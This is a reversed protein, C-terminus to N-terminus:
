YKEVGFRLVAERKNGNQKDERVIIARIDPHKACFDKIEDLSMIMFATSLAECYAATHAFAWTAGPQYIPQATRPDIIHFGKQLGSSSVAENNLLVHDIINQPDFPNTFSLEWGAHDPPSNYARVSSRGGHILFENIDWELLLDTIKDVAYGKGIGGLDIIIHSMSLEITFNDENLQILNMGVLQSAKEIEEASPNKLSRDPNLWLNMLSGVTIDFLGGTEKSFAQCQQLCEFTPLCLTLPQGAELNNIRAIDSNPNFRSLLQDLRDLERFAAYAAQHAYHPDHHRIMIEFITAMALYSFRHYNPNVNQAFNMAVFGM